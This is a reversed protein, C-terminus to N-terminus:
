KSPCDFAQSLIQEVWVDDPLPVPPNIPNKQPGLPSLPQPPHFSEGLLFPDGPLLPHYPSSSSVSESAEGTAILCFYNKGKPVPFDTIAFDTEPKGYCNIVCDLIKNEDVGENCLVGLHRLIRSAGVSLQLREFQPGGDKERAKNISMAHKHYLIFSSSQRKNSLHTRPKSIM